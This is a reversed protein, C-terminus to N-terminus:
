KAWVLVRQTSLHIHMNYSDCGFRIVNDEGALVVFDKETAGNGVRCHDARESSKCTLCVINTNTTCQLFLLYDNILSIILLLKNQLPQIQFTWCSCQTLDPLHKYM